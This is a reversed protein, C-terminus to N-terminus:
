FRQAEQWSWAPERAGDRSAKCFNVAFCMRRERSKPIM